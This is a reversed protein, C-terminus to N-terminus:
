TASKLRDRESRSRSEGRRELPLTFWFISGRGGEAERYGISGQMLEVLKKTLHLGIGSSAVSPEDGPRKLKSFRTFLKSRMALPIGEGQDEVEIVASEENAWARLSVTTGDPSYKVANSSLNYLVQMFRAQDVRVDIEAEVPDVRLSIARASAFMVMSRHAESLIQALNCTQIDMTVGGAEIAASDLIDNVVFLMHRGSFAAQSLYEKQEDEHMLSGHETLIDIAAIISTLPTRLEHVANSFAEDKLRDSNKRKAEQQDLQQQLFAQGSNAGDIMKTVERLLDTPTRVQQAPLDGKAVLQDQLRELPKAVRLTLTAAGCVGVVLALLLANWPIPSGRARLASETVLLGLVKGAQDHIPVFSLVVETGDITAIDSQAKETRLARHGTRPLLVATGFERPTGDSTAEQTLIARDDQQRVAFVRRHSPDRTLVRNLASTIQTSASGSGPIAEPDVLLRDGLLAVVQSAHETQTRIALSRQNDDIGQKCLWAVSWGTGM